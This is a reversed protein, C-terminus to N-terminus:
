KPTPPVVVQNIPQVSAGAPYAYSVATTSFSGTQGNGWGWVTLGFPADSSMVHLGNNCGNVPQFNGTVLDIGTVEYDGNTDIPQWGTLVGACDLTVDSFGNPGRKRVAVLHTEPYTPDTFFTYEALYQQTPILNVYEPDGRCDGGEAYKSCGEMYGAMYFPHDADQSRVIFPTSSFFKVFEGANLVSPAGPPPAPDWSLQTGDVAGVLRYPPDEVKGAFRDRFRVGAYETGLARVPPIQQHASDCATNNVDVSLCSAAGWVAIPKDALIASGTLEQSQTFQLVEGRQLTYDVPANAPAAQVGSGAVIPVQPNITVTTDDEAAVIDLSPQAQSVATSKEYANVAVYNLDWATTPLLLSASTVATSGGGYPYIDYAVVPRSASIRFASGRGTGFVHASESTLAPTIGAPCNVKDTGFRALFLVAVQNSPLEGNPLPQYTISQGSGSPIRAFSSADFVQGDREVQITIPSGWTNAIFAAYCIGRNFDIVDPPFAYYECGITSKNDAAGQCAEVCGGEGCAQDLPCEEVLNGNCDVISHLDASCSTSCSGGVGVSTALGGGPGTLAGTSGGSGNTTGAGAGSSTTAENSASCDLAVVAILLISLLGIFRRSM